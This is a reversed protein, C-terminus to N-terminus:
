TSVITRALGDDVVALEGVGARAARGRRGRARIASSELPPRRHRPVLLPEVVRVLCGARQPDARLPHDHAARRRPRRLAPGAHGPRRGRIADRIAGFLPDEPDRLAGQWFGRDNSAIYLDRTLRRYTSIDNHDVESMLRGPRIDWRDLVALGNGLNRLPLVFYIVDDTVDVGARGGEVKVWHDDIFMVKEPPDEWRTPVLVPRLSVQLAHETTRNAQHATRVSSFTAIALILTGGATALSSITM